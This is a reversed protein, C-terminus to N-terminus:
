WLPRQRPGPLLPPRASCLFNSDLRAAWASVPAQRPVNQPTPLDSPISCPPKVPSQSGGREGRKGSGPQSCRWGPMARRHQQKWITQLETAAVASGSPNRKLPTPSLPLPPLFIKTLDRTHTLTHAHPLTRSTHPHTHTHSCM